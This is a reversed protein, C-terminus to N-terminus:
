VTGGGTDGGPGNSRRGKFVKPLGGSSDKLGFRSTGFTVPKDFSFGPPQTSPGSASSSPRSSSTSAIALRAGENLDGVKKLVSKARSPGNSSASFRRSLYTSPGRSAPTPTEPPQSLPDSVVHSSSPLNRPASSINATGAGKLKLILVDRGPPPASLSTAGTDRHHVPTASPPPMYSLPNAGQIKGLNEAAIRQRIANEWSIPASAPPGRSSSAVSYPTAPTGSPVAKSLLQNQVNRRNREQELFTNADKVEQETLVDEDDPKFTETQEVSCIYDKEDIVRALVTDQAKFETIDQKPVDKPPALYQSLKKRAERIPAERDVVRKQLQTKFTATNWLNDEFTGGTRFRYVYVHKEQGLRFARGIAQHEWTPTWKFDFIVVRNAIPLNLGLGGAETSIIFVQIGALKDAFLKASKQRESMKTKGDLRLYKFGLEQINEELVDLTPISHSFVLVKDGEAISFRLIDRFARMKFSLDEQSDKYSDLMERAWQYPANASSLLENPGSNLDNVGSKVLDEPREPDEDEAEEEEALQRSKSIIKQAEAESLEIRKVFTAPHSCILSLLSIINFFYKGGKNGRSAEM